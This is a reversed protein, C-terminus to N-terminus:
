YSLWKDAKGYPVILSVVPFIRVPTCPNYESEADEKGSLLQRCLCAFLSLVEAGTCLTACADPLRPEQVYGMVIVISRAASLM